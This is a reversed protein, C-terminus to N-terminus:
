FRFYIFPNYTGAALSAACLVFAAAAGVARLPLSSLALQLGKRPAASQTPMDGSFRWTAILTGTILAAAAAAGFDMQWPHAGSSAGGFMVGLFKLAHPVDNARFFVWGIMVVLLTYAHSVMPPLRELMRGLGMREIILLAGHWAGWIIFTWAAGHWLGCLLFVIGLNAYTRFPSVRNGGLPIYLYDRFWSSLSIHWRRWFETVSTSSYPRNFNPPYSFGIMHGIGIAMNSYGAFDYLIQISYCAIGIWAGTTSLQDPAVAFLKDASLAVTNAILVKQALGVIFQQLGALVRANPISRHDVEDAIQRYRVIPGAILQPFMAKYMAFTWFSKQANVDGRYVDILYSIGQFTFFSIGLPLIIEPVYLPSSFLSVLENAITVFFGIYKYYMLFVLNAAVGFWLLPKKRAAFRQIAYGVSYNLVASFMLLPVFRPEGWAYFVLSAILLVPNKWPLVYYLILFVPFFYFLFTASSFVM